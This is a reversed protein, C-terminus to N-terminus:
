KKSINPITFPNLCAHEKFIEKTRMKIQLRSKEFAGLFPPEEM